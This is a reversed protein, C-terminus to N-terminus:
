LRLVGPGDCSCCVRGNDVHVHVCVVRASIVDDMADMARSRTERGVAQSAHLDCLRPLRRVGGREGACVFFCMGQKRNQWLLLVHFAKERM